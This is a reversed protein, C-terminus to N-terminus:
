EDDDEKRKFTQRLASQAEHDIDDPTECEGCWSNVMIEHDNMRVARLYFYQPLRTRCYDCTYLDDPDYMILQSLSPVVKTIQTSCV